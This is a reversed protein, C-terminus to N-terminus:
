AAFDGGGYVMQPYFLKLGEYMPLYLDMDLNVFCFTDEIDEAAEPIYGIHMEIREKFPMRKRVSDASTDSFWGEKVHEGNCYEQKEKDVDKAQFGEFSDFLHCTRDPFFLNIYYAFNGKYVGCEAVNGQM